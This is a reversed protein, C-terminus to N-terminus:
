GRAQRGGARGTDASAAKVREELDHLDQKEPIGRRGGNLVLHLHKELAPRHEDRAQQLLQGISEAMRILVAPKDSANQRIQNFAADALGEFTSVPAVVRVHGDEDKWVSRPAARQMMTRLSLTLRNIVALATYVDNIGPSLARLAVEVLHRASYELDQVTTREAGVLVASQIAQRLTDGDAKKPSVYAAVVGTVAHHGARVEFAVIADVEAAARAVSGYDIAQVYGGNGMVVPARDRKPEHHEGDEDNQEPCLRIIDRDLQAGVREIVNDAVISHALHHVFLVLTILSILVLVTGGTVAINPVTKGDGYASRLVLVLYVVTGVFLGLAIQTRRDSMFSRILRPGLQQAALALVVMTISIALTAMNIMATMLSSLFDPAQQSSGGFLVWIPRGAGASASLAAYALACGGCVILLPLAWLSSRVSEWVTALRTLM